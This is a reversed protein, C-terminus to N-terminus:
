SLYGAVTCFMGKSEPRAWKVKENASVTCFFIFAMNSIITPEIGLSETKQKKKLAKLPSNGGLCYCNKTTTTTTKKQMNKVNERGM